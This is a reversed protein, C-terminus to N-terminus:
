ICTVVAPADVPFFLDVTNSFHAQVPATSELYTFNCKSPIIFKRIIASERSDDQFSHFTLLHAPCVYLTNVGRQYQQVDDVTPYAVTTMDPLLVIDRDLFVQHVENDVFSPFHKIHYLTYTIGTKFSMNVLVYNHVVSAEM